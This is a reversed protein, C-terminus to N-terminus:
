AEDVIVKAAATTGLTVTARGRPRVKVADAAPDRSVLRGTAGPTLGHRSIFRLFAESQDIVRRVRFSRGEALDLLSGGEPERMEGRADPIPDGHPDVRPHGLYADIRALLADSVAADLTAAEAHVEAWDMGFVSVLFAEMLRHRRLADLAVRRGEPTLQLGRYPQHHVLGAAALRKAMTTVTGPTVGLAAALRTVAVSGSSENGSAEQELAHIQRLYGRMTRSVPRLTRRMAGDEGPLRLGAAFPGGPALFRVALTYNFVQHNM